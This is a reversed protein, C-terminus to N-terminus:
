KVLELNELATVVDEDSYELGYENGEGDYINVDISNYPYDIDDGNLYGPITDILIDNVAEIFDYEDDFDVEVNFTNYLNEQLEYLNSDMDGQDMFGKDYFAKFVILKDLYKSGSQMNAETVKDTKSLYDQCTKGSIIVLWPKSENKIKELKIM